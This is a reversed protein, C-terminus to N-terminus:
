KDQTSKENLARLLRLLHSELKSQRELVEELLDRLEENKIPPMKQRRSSLTVIKSM